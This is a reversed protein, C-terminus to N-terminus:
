ASAAHLVQEIEELGRHRAVINGFLANSQTTTGDPNSKTIYDTSLTPLNNAPINIAKTHKSANHLTNRLYDLFTNSKWRLRIQIYSDSM